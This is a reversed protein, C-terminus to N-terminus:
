HKDWDAGLDKLKRKVQNWIARDPRMTPVPGTVHKIAAKHIPGYIHVEIFDCDAEARRPEILVDPFDADRMGSTIKAALKGVALQDRRAWPARHGAPPMQGSIVSHRRNFEFPNEEFVSARHAILQENLVVCYPGYYEMGFSDLSLAGYSLENYFNPSVTNEASIRASGLGLRTPPTRRVASAPPLLYVAPQQQQAMLAPRGATSEDGCQEIWGGGRLIQARGRGRAGRCGRRRRRGSRGAGSKGRRDRRAPRESLGCRQQLCPLGAGFAARRKRVAPV